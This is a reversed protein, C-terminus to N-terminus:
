PLPFPSPCFQTLRAALDPRHINEFRKILYTLNNPTIKGYDILTEWIESMSQTKKYNDLIRRPVDCELIFCLNGIDDDNLEREINILLARLQFDTNSMI